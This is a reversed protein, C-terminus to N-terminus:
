AVLRKLRQICKYKVTKAANKNKYGFRRVIEELKLSQYYFAELLSRCPDGLKNLGSALVKALKETQHDVDEEVVLDLHDFGHTSLVRQKARLYERWKNKGIAFLYTKVSSTLKLLKGQIINDYFILVTTQYFELAEDRSCAFSKISWAVFPERLDLYLQEFAQSDGDRINRVIDEM